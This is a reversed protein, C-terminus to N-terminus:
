PFFFSPLFNKQHGDMWTNSSGGMDRGDWLLFHPSLTVRIEKKVELGIPSAREEERRAEAEGLRYLYVVSCWDTVVCVCHSEPMDSTATLFFLLSVHRPKGLKEQITKIFRIKRVTILKLPSPPRAQTPHFYVSHPTRPAYHYFFIVSM